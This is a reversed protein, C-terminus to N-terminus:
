VVIAIPGARYIYRIFSLLNFYIQSFIDILRVSLSENRPDVGVIDIGDTFSRTTRHLKQNRMPSNFRVIDASKRSSTTLTSPRGRSRCGAIAQCRRSRSEPKPVVAYEGDFSYDSVHHHEDGDFWNGCYLGIFDGRKLENTSRSWACMRRRARRWRQAHPLQKSTRGAARM